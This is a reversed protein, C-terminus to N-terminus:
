KEYKKLYSIKFYIPSDSRRIDYCKILKFDKLFIKVIEDRSFYHYYHGNRVSWNKHKGQRKGFKKVYSIKDSFTLLFVYGGPKLVKRINDLYKKYQSSHLHHLCGSDIIIDFRNKQYPLNLVNGVELKINKLNFKNTHFKAFKIASKSIDIGWVHFKKQAFFIAHRANGVGVDLVNKGIDKYKIFNYFDGISQYPVNSSYHWKDKSFIYNKDILKSWFNEYKKHLLKSYKDM